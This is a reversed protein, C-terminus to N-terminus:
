LSEVGAKKELKYRTIQPVYVSFLCEFVKINKLSPKYDYWVEFLTNGEVEKTPLRYPLFVTTHATETWYEKALM